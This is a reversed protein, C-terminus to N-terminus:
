MSGNSVRVQVQVDHVCVLMHMCVEKVAEALAIYEARDDVFGCHVTLYLALEGTGTIFYVTSILIGLM